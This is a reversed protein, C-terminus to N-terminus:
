RTNVWAIRDSSFRFSPDLLVVYHGSSNGQKADFCVDATMNGGPALEGSKLLNDSGTHTNSLIAGNPSQLKWDFGGNFTTPRGSQNDYTVTTCLTPGLTADGAVLSTTTVRLGEADVTEGAQAVVDRDTAGPFAPQAGPERAASTSDGPSVVTPRDGDGRTSLVIIVIIVVLALPLIFRKKKYWPRQAKRYAKEAKARARADGSNDFTPSAGEPQSMVIVEVQIDTSCPRGAYQRAVRGAPQRVSRSGKAGTPDGM